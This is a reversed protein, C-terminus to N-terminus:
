LLCSTRVKNENNTNADSLRGPQETTAAKRATPEFSKRGGAHYNLDDPHDPPDSRGGPSSGTDFAGKFFKRPTLWKKSPPAFPDDLPPRTGGKELTNPSLPSPKNRQPRSEDSRSMVSSMASMMAPSLRVDNFEDDEDVSHDVVLRLNTNTNDRDSSDSSSSATAYKGDTLALTPPRKRQNKAGLHKRIAYYSAGIAILFAVASVFLAVVFQASSGKSTEAEIFLPAFFAGEASLENLYIDFYADFAENVLAEFDFEESAVGNTVVGVTRFLVELGVKNELKRNRDGDTAADPGTHLTQTLIIGAVINVEFDTIYEKSFAEKIFNLTTIEFRGIEAEMM